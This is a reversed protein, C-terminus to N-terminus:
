EWLQISLAYLGEPWEGNADYLRTSGLVQINTDGLIGDLGGGGLGSLLSNLDLDLGGGVLSLLMPVMGEFWTSLGDVVADEDYESAGYALVAGEDVQMSFGLESGNEVNIGLQVALSTSLWDTCVGNQLVGADVQFDPMYLVALPAVQEQMRVVYASHPDISLCWGDGDPAEDGGPLAVIGAGILDGYPSGLQLDQKLYGMVMDDLLLQFLGEHLAFAADANEAYPTTTDPTPIDLPDESAPEGLGLGLGLGIGELDGYLDNLRASVSLGMLDTDFAFPGGVEIVGLQDLLTTLLLESLPEVVYGDLADVVWELLWGELFAIQFDVDNLDLRADTLSLTIIGDSDLAPIALAGIAVEGWGMSLTDTWSLWDVVIEYEIKLDTISVAANIGEEAPTLEVVTPNHTVGVPNLEFYTTSIQPLAAAIQDAWGMDDIMQGVGEGLKELGRPLLRGTAGGPWTDMPPNGSFVPVRVRQYQDAFSAEVDIMRYAGDVPLSISFEGTEHDFEVPEDDIMLSAPSPFLTGTVLAQEQDLFVGYEPSTVTLELTGAERGSIVTYDSSCGALALLSLTSAVRM